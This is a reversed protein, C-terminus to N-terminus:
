TRRRTACRDCSGRFTIEHENVALPVRRAVRGIVRELEADNFPLVDGCEDCVLHHHHREPSVAEYRATGDGVEIKAVLRLRELEDLIRYVSARAVRRDSARLADEIEQASLACDQRGLLDVIASRAGGRRYGAAALRDAAQGTWATTQPV